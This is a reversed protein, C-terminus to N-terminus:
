SIMSFSFQNKSLSESFVVPPRLPREVLEPRRSAEARIRLRLSLGEELTDRLVARGLRTLPVDRAISDLLVGLDRAVGRDLERGVVDGPERIGHVRGALGRQALYRSWTYKAASSPAFPRSSQFLSPVAAPVSTSVSLMTPRLQTALM